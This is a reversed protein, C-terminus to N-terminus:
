PDPSQLPHSQNEIANKRAKRKRLYNNLHLLGAAGNLVVLAVLPISPVQVGGLTLLVSALFAIFAIAGFMIVAEYRDM